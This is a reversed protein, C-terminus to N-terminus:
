PQTTPAPVFTNPAVANVTPRARLTRSANDGFGIDDVCTNTGGNNYKDYYVNGGVTYTGDIGFNLALDAQSEKHNHNIIITIIIVRGPGWTSTTSNYDNLSPLTSTWVGGTVAGTFAGTAGLDDVWEVDGYTMDTPLVPLDLRGDFNGTYGNASVKIYHTSVGYDYEVDGTATITASAVAPACIDNGGTAGLADAVNEIKLWFTNQPTIQYVKVNNGTCAANNENVENYDIVLYYPQGTALAASQWTIRIPAILNTVDNYTAYPAGTNDFGTGDAIVTATLLDFPPTGQVIYWRYFGDGDFGAQNTVTVTYEYEQGVSPTLPTGVCLPPQDHPPNQGFLSSVAILALVLILLQKKMTTLKLLKYDSQKSFNFPKIKTNQGHRVTNQKTLSKNTKGKVPTM